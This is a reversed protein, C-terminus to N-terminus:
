GTGRNVLFASGPPFPAFPALYIPLPAGTSATGLAADLVAMCRQEDRIVTDEIYAVARALPPADLEIAATLEGELASMSQRVHEWGQAAPGGAAVLSTAFSKVDAAEALEIPLYTVGSDRLERLGVSFLSVQPTHPRPLLCLEWPRRGSVERQIALFLSLPENYLISSTHAAQAM